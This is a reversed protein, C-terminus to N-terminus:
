RIIRDPFVTNTKPVLYFTHVASNTGPLFLKDDVSNLYTGIRM